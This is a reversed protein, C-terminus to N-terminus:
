KGMNQGHGAIGQEATGNRELLPQHRKTASEEDDNEGAQHIHSVAVTHSIPGSPCKAIVPMRASFMLMSNGMADLRARESLFMASALADRMPPRSSSASIVTTRASSLTFKQRLSPSRSPRYPGLPAPLVVNNRTNAPM